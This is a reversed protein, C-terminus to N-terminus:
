SLAVAVFGLAVAAAGLAVAFTALSRERGSSPDRRATTGLLAGGTGLVFPLGTWASAVSLFAVGSTILAMEASRASPRAKARPVVGVFVLVAMGVTVAGALGAAVLTRDAGRDTVYEFAIASVGAGTALVAMVSETVSVTTM